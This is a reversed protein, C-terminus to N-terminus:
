RQTCIATCSSEFCLCKCEIIHMQFHRCFPLWNIKVEVYWVLSFLGVFGHAYKMPINYTEYTIHWIVIIWIYFHCFCTIIKSVKRWVKFAFYLDQFIMVLSRGKLPMMYGFIKKMIDLTSVLSTLLTQGWRFIFACLKYIVRDCNTYIKYIVEIIM